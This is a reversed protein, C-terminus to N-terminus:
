TWRLIWVGIEKYSFAQNWEYFEWYVIGSMLVLSGTVKKLKRQLSLPGLVGLSKQNQDKKLKLKAGM